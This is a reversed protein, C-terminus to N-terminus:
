YKTIEVIKNEILKKHKEEENMLMLLLERIESHDGAMKRYLEITEKEKGLALQLAEVPTM